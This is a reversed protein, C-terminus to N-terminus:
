SKNILLRKGVSVPRLIQSYLSSPLHVKAYVSKYTASDANQKANSNAQQKNEKLIIGNRYFVHVNSLSNNGVHGKAALTVKCLFMYGVSHKLTERGGWVSDSVM